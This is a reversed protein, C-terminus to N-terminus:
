RSARRREPAPCCTGPAPRASAWGGAGPSRLIAATVDPKLLRPTAWRRQRGGPRCCRLSVPGHCAQAARERRERLRLPRDIPDDQDANEGDDDDAVQDAQREIAQDPRGAPQLRKATKQ